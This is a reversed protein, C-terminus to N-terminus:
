YAPAKAAIGDLVAQERAPDVIPLQQAFKAAAVAPMEDLRAQLLRVVEAVDREPDTFTAAHTPSAVLLACLLIQFPRMAGHSDVALPRGDVESVFFGAPM